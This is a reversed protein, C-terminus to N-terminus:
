GQVLLVRAIGIGSSQVKRFETELCDFYSLNPIPIFGTLALGLAYADNPTVDEDVAGPVPYRLTRPTRNQWKVAIWEAFLAEIEEVYYLAKKEADIGRSPVDRGKYGPLRAAFDSSIHKFVNELPSKDTPRHVRARQIHIGLRTCVDQFTRSIMQKGHDILVTDPKVFPIGATDRRITLGSLDSDSETSVDSASESPIEGVYEIIRIDDPVGFYNWLAIDPWDPMSPKPHLVDFLLLAIDIAKTSVPTFRWAIISRTYYEYAITLDLQQWGGTAPDLAFMDMRTSDFIVLEGPRTSRFSGFPTKPQLSSKQNARASPKFGLQHKVITILRNLSAVSPIEVKDGFDTKLQNKIDKHLLVNSVSSDTTLRKLVKRIAELLPDSENRQSRALPLSRKDILGYLGSRKYESKLRWMSSSNKNLEEAKANMRMTFNTTEVDYRPDVNEQDESHIGHIVMELHDRLDYADKLAKKSINDFFSPEPQEIFTPDVDLPVPRDRVFVSTSITVITTDERQIVVKNRVFRMLKVHEDRWKYIGGIKLEWKNM